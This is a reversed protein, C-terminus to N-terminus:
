ANVAGKSGILTVAVRRQDIRRKQIERYNRTAELLQDVSLYQLAAALEIMHIDEGACGLRWSYEAVTDEDVITDVCRVALDIQRGFAGMVAEIAEELDVCFFSVSKTTGKQTWDSM